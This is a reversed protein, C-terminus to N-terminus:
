IRDRSEHAYDELIQFGAVELMATMEPTTYRAFFRRNEGYIERTELHEGEGEQVSLFLIGVPKLVRKFELLAAPSDTKPLHLLSASCWIGDLSHVEFPMNRMDAQLLAGHVKERALKLMSSSFDVGTVNINHNEFWAIDRGPGCGVDLIEANPELAGLFKQAFALLTESMNASIQAYTPAMQEYSERTIEIEKM